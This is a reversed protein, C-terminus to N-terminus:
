GSEVTPGPTGGSGAGYRERAIGGIPFQARRGEGQGSPKHEETIIGRPDSASVVRDHEEEGTGTKRSPFETFM